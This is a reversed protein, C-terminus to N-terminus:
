LCRRRVMADYAKWLHIFVGYLPMQKICALQQALKVETVATGTGRGALFGPLCDHYDLIKLM